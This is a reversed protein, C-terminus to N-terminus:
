MFHTELYFKGERHSQCAITLLDAHLRIPPSDLKMIQKIGANMEELFHKTAMNIKKTSHGM